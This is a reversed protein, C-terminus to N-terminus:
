RRWPRTPKGSIPPALDDCAGMMGDDGAHDAFGSDRPGKPGGRVKSSNCM